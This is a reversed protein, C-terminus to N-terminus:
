SQKPAFADNIKSIVENAHEPDKIKDGLSKVANVLVRVKSEEATLYLPMDLNQGLTFRRFSAEDATMGKLDIPKASIARDAYCAMLWSFCEDHYTYYLLHPSRSLLKQVYARVEDIEFLERPDYDYGSISLMVSNKFTSKSAVINDFFKTAPRTDCNVIETKNIPLGILTAKPSLKAQQAMQIFEEKSPIEFKYEMSM